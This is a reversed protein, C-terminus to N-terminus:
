RPRASLNSAGCSDYNGYLHHDDGNEYAFFGLVGM